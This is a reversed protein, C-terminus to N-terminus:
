VILHDKRTKNFKISFLYFMSTERKNYKKGNSLQSIQVLDCFILIYGKNDVQFRYKKVMKM